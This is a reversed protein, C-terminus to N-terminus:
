FGKLKSRVNDRKLGPRCEGEVKSIQTNTSELATKRSDDLKAQERMVLEQVFAAGLSWVKPNLELANNISDFEFLKLLGNAFRIQNTFSKSWEPLQWFKQKLVLKKEAAQRVCIIEALKQAATITSKTGYLSVYRKIM